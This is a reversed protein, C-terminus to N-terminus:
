DEKPNAELTARVWALRNPCEHQTKAVARYTYGSGFPTARHAFLKGIEVQLASVLIGRRSGFYAANSCLGFRRHYPEWDPAGRDVWDIWDQLFARLEPSIGTPIPPNSM